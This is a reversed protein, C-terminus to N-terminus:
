GGTLVELQPFINRWHVVSRRKRNHLEYFGYYRRADLSGDPQRIFFGGCASYPEIVLAVQFLEPFFNRHLWTDYESLFVGMRPHTHYWGVLEKNPYREELAQHMAVQSEQTFTLFASGQRTHPAPLINEVVIFEKGTRKDMRWKGVLWGGVENNLDSGAHACCRVYARQSVFVSVVPEPGNEENASQWRMARSSPLYGKRPEQQGNTPLLRISPSTM